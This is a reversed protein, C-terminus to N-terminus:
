KLILCSKSFNICFEECEGIYHIKGFILEKKKLLLTYCSSLYELLCSVQRAFLQDLVVRDRPGYIIM